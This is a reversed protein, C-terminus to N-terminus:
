NSGITNMIKLFVKIGQLVFFNMAILKLFLTANILMFFVM